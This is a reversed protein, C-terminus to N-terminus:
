NCVISLMFCNILGVDSMLLSIAFTGSSGPFVVKLIAVNDAIVSFMSRQGHADRYGVSISGRVFPCDKM